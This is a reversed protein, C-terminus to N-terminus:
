PPRISVRHAVTNYHGRIRGAGSLGSANGACGMGKVLCRGGQMEETSITWDMESHRLHSVLPGYRRERALQELLQLHQDGEDLM